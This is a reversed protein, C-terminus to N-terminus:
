TTEKKKAISAAGFFHNANRIMLESSAFSCSSSLMRKPLRVIQATAKANRALENRLAPNNSLTSM